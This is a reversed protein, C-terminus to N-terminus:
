CMRSKRLKRYVAYVVLLSSILLGEWLMVNAEDGTKPADSVTHTNPNPKTTNPKDPNSGSGGPVIQESHKQFKWVGTFKITNNEDANEANAVKSNQDYGEFKWTGEAM